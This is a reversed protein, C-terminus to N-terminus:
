AFLYREQECAAEAVLRKAALLGSANYKTFRRVGSLIMTLNDGEEIYFAGKRAATGIVEAANFSFIKVTASILDQRASSAEVFHKEARLVCSELAFIQIAVDAAAM